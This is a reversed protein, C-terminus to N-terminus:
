NKKNKKEKKQSFMQLDLKKLADDKVIFRRMTGNQYLITVRENAVHIAQYKVPMSQQDVKLQKPAKFPYLHSHSHTSYIQLTGDNLLIFLLTGYIQVSVIQGTPLQTLNNNYYPHFRATITNISSLLIRKNSILHQWIPEKTAIMETDHCLENTAWTASIFEGTTTSLSILGTWQTDFRDTCNAHYVDAYSIQKNEIYVLRPRDVKRLIDIIVVGISFSVVCINLASLTISVIGGKRYNALYIEPFKFNFVDCHNKGPRGNKNLRYVELTFIDSDETNFAQYLMVMYDLNFAITPVTGALVKIPQIIAEKWIKDDCYWLKFSGHETENTNEPKSIVNTEYSYVKFTVSSPTSRKSVHTKEEQNDELKQPLKKMRDNLFPKLEDIIIKFSEDYKIIHHMETVINAAEKSTSAYKIRHKYNAFLSRRVLQRCMKFFEQLDKASNETAASMVYAAKGNTGLMHMHKEELTDSDKIDILDKHKTFIEEIAGRIKREGKPVDGFLISEFVNKEAKTLQTDKENLIKCDTVLNIEPSSKEKVNEDIFISSMFLNNEGEEM